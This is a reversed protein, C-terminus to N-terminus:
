SCFYTWALGLRTIKQRGSLKSPKANKSRLKSQNDLTAAKDRVDRNVYQSGHDMMDRDSRGFITYLAVEEGHSLVCEGSEFEM